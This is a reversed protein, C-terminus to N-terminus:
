PCPVPAPGANFMFNVLYVLDAIDPGTLNGDIDCEPFYGSGAPEECSPLPGGNFMFNVLHVLDAIDPDSGDHNIDGRIACCSEPECLKTVFVDGNGNFSADYPDQTPFDSYGTYGTVYACGSGDVAIGDAEDGGDSGGLYTSYILTNGSASFKTVFVDCSGGLSADYPDQTPFDTSRTWGTVYACGSGDVAIGWGHELNSGGLYTSYTLVPDIVLPLDPDYDFGLAFGFSKPGTLTYEGAVAVRTDNVMQYVVPRREIVEGWETEVVLEGAANVTLSRAGDYRIAIQSPDAGPSVIFDYEMQKGNGYYKLDIGSYIDEYVIADYNPVDTRWKSPENGIFYNCKYDIAGTGKIEVGHNAGVFSAKIMMTEVSDPQRHLGEVGSLTVDDPMGYRKDVISYEETEITRTFQYYAGDSSFWMTAGGADARFLVEEDWQGQNETFAMPMSTLNRTVEIQVDESLESM